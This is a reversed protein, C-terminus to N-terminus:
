KKGNGVKGEKRGEMEQRDGEKCGRKGGCKRRKGEKATKRGLRVGREAGKREGM